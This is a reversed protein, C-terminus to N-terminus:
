LSTWNYKMLRSCIKVPEIKSEEELIKSILVQV